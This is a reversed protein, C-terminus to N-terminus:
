FKKLDLVPIEVAQEQYTSHIVGSFYEGVEGEKESSALVKKVVQDVLFGKYGGNDKVALMRIEDKPDGGPIALIKKLNIMRIEFDRMQIKEQNSYRKQSTM